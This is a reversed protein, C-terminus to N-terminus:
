EILQPVAGNHFAHLLEAARQDRKRALHQALPPLQRWTMKYAGRLTPRFSKGDFRMVGREVQEEFGKKWIEAMYREAEGQPYVQPTDDPPIAVVKEIVFRHLAYLRALDQEGAFAVKTEHPLPDFSGITTGNMTDVLRGSAFRTSFETYNTQIRAAGSETSIIATVMAKDGTERRTLLILHTRLNPASAPLMLCTEVAFGLAKLQGVSKLLHEQVEPRLKDLYFRTTVLEAQMRSTALILLPMGLYVFSGIVGGGILLGELSAM